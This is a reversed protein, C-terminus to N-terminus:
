AAGPSRDHAARGLLRYPQILIEAPIHLERHLAQIMATSLARRRNLIESVRSRSGIVEVLDNRSFRGEAMGTELATVPDPPAIPWRRAEYAEILASLVDFRDGESTGQAPEDDFYREIEKLAWDYDDENRIPRVDM